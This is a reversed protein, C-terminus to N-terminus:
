YNVVLQFSPKGPPESSLSDAWSAPTEPNPLDGPCPFPLGNWYEKRSLIPFFEPPGCDKHDCFTLGLYTVLVCVCSFAVDANNKFGM